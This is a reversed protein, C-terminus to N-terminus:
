VIPESEGLSGEIPAISGIPHPRNAMDVLKQIPGALIFSDGVTIPAKALVTLVARLEDPTITM